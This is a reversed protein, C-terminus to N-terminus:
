RAPATALVSSEDSFAAQPFVRDVGAALLVNDGESGFRPPHGVADTQRRPRGRLEENIGDLTGIQIHRPM